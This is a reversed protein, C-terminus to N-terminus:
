PLVEAEPWRQLVDRVLEERDCPGIATCWSNSPTAPLRFKVTSRHVSDPVLPLLDAKCARVQAVLDDPPQTAARMKLRDGTRVIQVGHRHLEALLERAASM